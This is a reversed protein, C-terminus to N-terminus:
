LDFLSEASHIDVDTRPTHAAGSGAVPEAAPTAPAAAAAEPEAASVPAEAADTGPAAPTAPATSAPAPASATGPAVVIPAPAEIDFLEYTGATDAASVKETAVADVTDLRTGSGAPVMRIHHPM